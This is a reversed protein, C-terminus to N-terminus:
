KFEKLSQDMEQVTCDTRKIVGFGYAELKAAIDSADNITNKLPPATAYSANGFVLAVRHQVM